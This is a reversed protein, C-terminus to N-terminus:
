VIGGKKVYFQIIRNMMCQFYVGVPVYEYISYLIEGWIFSHGDADVYVKFSPFSLLMHSKSKGKAKNDRPHRGDPIIFCFFIDNNVNYGAFHYM